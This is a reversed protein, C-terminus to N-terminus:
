GIVIERVLFGLKVVGKLCSVLWNASFYLVM